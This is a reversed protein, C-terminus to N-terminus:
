YVEREGHFDISQFVGPHLSCRYGHAQPNKQKRKFYGVTPVGSIEAHKGRPPQDLADMWLHNPPRNIWPHLHLPVRIASTATSYGRSWRGRYIGGM